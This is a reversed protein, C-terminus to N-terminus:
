LKEPIAFLESGEELIAWYELLWSEIKSVLDEPLKMQTALENVFSIEEQSYESDIHAIVIADRLILRKTTESVNSFDIDDIDITKSWYPESDIDLIGAQFNVYDKEQQLLGDIRAIAVLTQIYSEKELDAICEQITIM